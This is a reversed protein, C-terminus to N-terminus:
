AALEMPQYHKMSLKKGKVKRIQTEAVDVVRDIATYLDGTIANAEFRGEKSRILVEAHHDRKEVGLIIHIDADFRLHKELSGMIKEVAYEKLPETPNTHRFTVHINLTPTRRNAM